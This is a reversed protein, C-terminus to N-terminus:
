VVICHKLGDAHTLTHQVINYSQKPSYSMGNLPFHEMRTKVPMYQVLLLIKLVMKPTPVSDAKIDQEESKVKTRCNSDNNTEGAAKKDETDNLKKPSAVSQLQCSVFIVNTLYM